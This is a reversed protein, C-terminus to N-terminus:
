RIATIAALRTEEFAMMKEHLMANLMGKRVNQYDWERRLSDYPAGEIAMQASLADLEVGLTRIETRLFEVQTNLDMMDKEFDKADPESSGASCAVLIAPMLLVLAAFTLRSIFSYQVRSPTISSMTQIRKKLISPRQVMAVAPVTRPAASFRLLLSAYSSVPWDIRRLTEQDCSLERFHKVQQSLLWVLPNFAFLAAVFRAIFGFGYDHRRVHVLEHMLTVRLVEPEELLAQPLLVVPHRWGFTMPADQSPSLLVRVPRTIGLSESIEKFLAETDGDVPQLHRLPWGKLRIYNVALRICAVISVLLALLTAIGMGMSLDFPQSTQPSPTGLSRGSAEASTEVSSKLPTSSVPLATRSSGEQAALSFTPATLIPNNVVQVAAPMLLFGLPLSLLLALSAQYHLLPRTRGIWRSWLGLALAVLTWMALPLWFYLFSSRGLDSVWTLVDM